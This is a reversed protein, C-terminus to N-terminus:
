TSRTGHIAERKVPGSVTVGAHGLKGVRRRCLWFDGTPRLEGGVLLSTRQGGKRRECSANESCAISQAATWPYASSLHHPIDAYRDFTGLLHLGECALLKAAPARWKVIARLETRGTTKM